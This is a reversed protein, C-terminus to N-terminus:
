TSRTLVRPAILAACVGAVIHMVSLWVAIPTSFEMYPFPLTLVAVAIVIFPFWRPVLWLVLWAPVIMALTYTVVTVVGLEGPVILTDGALLALVANIVAAVALAVAVAILAKLPSPRSM